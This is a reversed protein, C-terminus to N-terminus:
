RLAGKVKQQFFILLKDGEFDIISSATMIFM